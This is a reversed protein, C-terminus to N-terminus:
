TQVDKAKRFINVISKEKARESRRLDDQLVKITNACDSNGAITSLIANLFSQTDHLKYTLVHEGYVARAYEEDPVIPLVGSRIAEVVHLGLTEIISTSVLVTNDSFLKQMEGERDLYGLFNTKSDLQSDWLPSNALQERTLTINIEFDIKLKDLEVMAQTFDAINKHVYAFHPGVIYLFKLPKEFDYNVPERFCRDSVDIDSKLYFIKNEIDLFDAMSKPVHSSQIEFCHAHQAMFKFVLRKLFIQKIWPVYQRTKWYARDLKQSYFLLNQIKLLQPVNLFPQSSGSFNYILEVDYDRVIQKFVVNEYYLRHLFGRAPILRFDFHEFTGFQDLLKAIHEGENCLILYAVSPDQVCENLMKALVTIGGSDQIGLANILIKM